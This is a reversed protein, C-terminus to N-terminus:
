IVLMLFLNFACISGLILTLFPNINFVPTTNNNTKFFLIKIIRLYYGVSLVSSFFAALLILNFGLGTINQFSSIFSDANEILSYLVSVKATFGALPPIGGMSLLITFAFFTLGPNNKILDGLETIKTLQYFSRNIGNIRTYSLLILLSWMGFTLGIYIFLYLLSANIGATTSAIIGILMFGFHNVSSFALFRKINQTKLASLSGLILSFFCCFIFFPQLIFFLSIFTNQFLKILIIFLSIKPVTSFLLATPTLIGEYIDAVWEHFPAIALKVFFATFILFVGFFLILDLLSTYKSNYFYLFSQINDFNYQGTLLVIISIGFLLLSSSFSGIIFYKLGAETSHASKKVTAIIYFSLAQIELSIYLILFDNASLTILAGFLGCLVLINYEFYGMLTEKFFNISFMIILISLFLMFIKFALIETNVVLFSSLFSIYIKSSTTSLFNFNLINFFQIVALIYIAIKSSYDILTFYKETSLFLSQILVLLIGILLLVEGIYPFFGSLTENHIYLNFFGM